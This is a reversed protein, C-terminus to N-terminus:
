YTYKPPFVLSLYDLDGNSHPSTQDYVLCARTEVDTGKYTDHSAGAAVTVDTSTVQHPTPDTTNLGHQIVSHGKIRVHGRRSDLSREVVEDSGDDRCSSGKPLSNNGKEMEDQCKAVKPDILKYLEHLCTDM